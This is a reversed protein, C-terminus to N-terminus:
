ARRLLPLLVLTFTGSGVIVHLRVVAEVTCSEGGRAHALSVCAVSRGLNKLYPLKTAYRVMLM